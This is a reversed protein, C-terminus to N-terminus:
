FKGLFARFVNKIKDLHKATLGHHCGIVFSQKMIFDAVPYGGRKEVRTIKHFGPQRLINGTFIPRTQINNNELHKVIDFRSFPTGKKLTLPFALWSTSVGRMQEPLYFFDDYEGFFKMLEAFNKRRIAAYTNLKRLQALGFAASVDTTRMNYGIESFVFKADYPMGGIKTKYRKTIDETENLSSHRGWGSLIRAKPYWEPNDLCLMGGEGAATVIHSAYFSTTSIDSYMGTPKGDITAGLTDCSDEILYLKYKKAIAHLRRLDPINGFLSPVMIAKTKKHIMSEVQDIDLLYSGIKADVFAPVLGLKIMPSVTTAFTLIPTIIESGKPLGLTELALLNASSGSNVFLGYKKGFLGAIEREFEEARKGAVIQPTRLVESVARREEEGFVALAYPVRLDNGKKRTPM